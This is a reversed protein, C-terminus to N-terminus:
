TIGKTSDPEGPRPERKPKKLRWDDRVSEFIAALFLWSWWLSIVVLGIVCLGLAVAFFVILFPM